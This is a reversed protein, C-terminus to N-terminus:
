QTAEQGYTAVRVFGPTTAALGYGRALGNHEVLYGNLQNALAPDSVAWHDAAGRITGTRNAAADATTDIADGGLTASAVVQATAGAGASAVRTTAADTAADQQVPNSVLLVFGTASAAAAMGAMSRWGRRRRAPRLRTEPLAVSAAFADSQMDSEAHIAQMVRGSFGVDLDLAIPTEGAPTRLVTRVWHQRTWSDRLREDRLLANVVSDAEDRTAESDLFASFQENM